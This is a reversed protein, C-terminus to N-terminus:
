ADVRRASDVWFSFWAPSVPDVVCVARPLAAYGVGWQGPQGVPQPQRVPQSQGVAQPMM